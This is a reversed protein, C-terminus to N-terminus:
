KDFHPHRSYDDIHYQSIDHIFQKKSDRKQKKAGMVSGAINSLYFVSFISGFIIFRPSSLRTLRYSEYAQIGYMANALFMNIGQKKKGLYIKGLGPVVASLAGALFTSKGNDKYYRKYSQHIDPPVKFQDVNEPKYDRRLMKLAISISQLENQDDQHHMLFRNVVDIKGLVLNLKLFDKEFHHFLIDSDHKKEYYTLASDYFGLRHFAWGKELIIRTASTSDKLNSLLFISETFLKQHILHKLFVEEDNFSGIQCYSFIPTFLFLLTYRIFIQIM